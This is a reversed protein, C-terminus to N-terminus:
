LQDVAVTGGLGGREGDGPRHGFVIQVAVGGHRQPAGDVPGVHAHQARQAVGHWRAQGAFEVDTARAHGQAVQVTRIERLLTEDGVRETTGVVREVASAVGHAPQVIAAQFVQAPQIALELDPAKADLRTLDFSHQGAMRGHGVGGDGVFARGIALAAQHCPQHCCGALCQGIVVGQAIVAALAQGDVHHGRTEHGNWLQRDGQVALQVAAGQLGHLGFVCCMCIIGVGTKCFFRLNCATVYGPAICIKCM